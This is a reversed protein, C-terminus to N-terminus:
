LKRVVRAPNGAVVTAPPVDKTVVAGAGVAAGDGIVVGKLILANMGIFVDSGITVPASAGEQPSLRRKAADVPHFDTDTVIVNGGLLVRDGVEVRMQACITGGTMGFDDGVVIAAGAARTAFFAPREPAIPNSAAFSRITARDGLRITSGRHRQVIPRGYFRAHRGRELGQLSLVASTWPLAAVRRLENTALWPAARARQMNTM